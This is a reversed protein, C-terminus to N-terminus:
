KTERLSRYLIYDALVFLPTTLALLGMSVLNGIIETIRIYAESNVPLGTIALTFIFYLVMQLVIVGLSFLLKPIVLRIFTPFFQGRVLERSAKLADIIGRNELLFTYGPFALFISLMVIVVLAILMGFFLIALSSTTSAIGWGHNASLISLWIGPVMILVPSALIVNRVITLGFYPIFRRWSHASIEAFAKPQNNVLADSSQILNLFVWISMIGAGVTGGLIGLAIGIMQWVTLGAQTVFLPNNGAPALMIGLIAIVSLLFYWLTVKMFSRFHKTYTDWVTDLIKGITLLKAPM